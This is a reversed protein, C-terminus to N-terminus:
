EEEQLSKGNEKPKTLFTNLTEKPLPMPMPPMGAGQPPMPPGGAGMPPEAPLPPQQPPVMGAQQRQQQMAKMAALDGLSSGQVAM